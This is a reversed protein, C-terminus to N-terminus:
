LLHSSRPAIEQRGLRDRRFLLGFGEHKEQELDM